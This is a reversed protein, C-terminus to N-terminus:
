IWHRAAGDGFQCPPYGRPLGIHRATDGSTPQCASLRALQGPEVYGLYKSALMGGPAM